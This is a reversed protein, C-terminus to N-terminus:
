APLHRPGAATKKSPLSPCPPCAPKVPATTRLPITHAVRRVLAAAWPLGVRAQASACLSLCFAASARAQSVLRTSTCNKKEQAHGGHPLTRPRLYERRQCPRQPRLTPRNVDGALICRHSSRASPSTSTHVVVGRGGGAKDGLGHRHAEAEALARRTAVRRSAV